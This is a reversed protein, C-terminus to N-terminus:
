GRVKPADGQLNTTINVSDGQDGLGKHLDSPKQKVTQPRMLTVKAFWVSNEGESNPGESKNKERMRMQRPSRVPRNIGRLPSPASAPGLNSRQRQPLSWCDGDGDGDGHGVRRCGRTKGNRERSKWPQPCTRGAGPRGAKGPGWTSSIPSEM